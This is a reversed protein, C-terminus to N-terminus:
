QPSVLGLFEWALNEPDLKRAEEISECAALIQMRFVGSGMAYWACVDRYCVYSGDGHDLSYVAGRWQANMGNVSIDRAAGIEVDRYGLEASFGEPSCVDTRVQEATVGGELFYDAIREKGEPSVSIVEAFSEDFGSVSFGEPVVLGVTGTNALSLTIWGPNDGQRMWLDDEPDSLEEGDDEALFSIDEETLSSYDEESLTKELNEEELLQDLMELNKNRRELLGVSGAYLLAPLTSRPITVDTSARATGEPLLLGEGSGFDTWTYTLHCSELTFWAGEVWSEAFAEALLADGLSTLESELRRPLGNEKGVWLKVSVSGAPAKGDLCFLERMLTGDAPIEQEYLRYVKGDASDTEERAAANATIEPFADRFFALFTERVDSAESGWAGDEYLYFTEKEGAFATEATQEGLTDSFTISGTLASRGSSLEEATELVMERRIKPAKGGEALGSYDAPLDEADLRLGLEATLSLSGRYSGAELLANSGVSKASESPKGGRGFAIVCVLILLLVIGAAILIEKKHKLFVERNLIVRHDLLKRFYRQIKEKM